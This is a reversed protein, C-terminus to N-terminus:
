CKKFIEQFKQAHVQCTFRKAWERGNKGITKALETNKLLLRAKEIFESPNDPDILYGNYGDKVADPVGGSNGAIVPKELWGAELYVMGFGEIDGKEDRSIMTFIDSIALLANKDENSIKGTFIVKNQINLSRALTELQNRYGGEGVIVYVLDPFEKILIPLTKIIFDQGKRSVLRGVTLLVKKNELSYKAKVESIHSSDPIAPEDVSPNLIKISNQNAGKELAIKATASSNAIIYKANSLIKTLKKKQVMKIIPFLKTFKTQPLSLDMGHVFISYEIKNKIKQKLAVQGGLMVEGAVIHNISKERILKETTKEMPALCPRFKTILKTRIINESLKLEGTKETNSSVLFIFKKNDCLEALKGYTYEMGGKQPPFYNTIFLVM